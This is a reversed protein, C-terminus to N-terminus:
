RTNTAKRGTNVEAGPEHLFRGKGDMPRYVAPQSIAIPPPMTLPSTSILQILM